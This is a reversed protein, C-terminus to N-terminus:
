WVANSEELYSVSANISSTRLTRTLATSQPKHLQIASPTQLILINVYSLSPLDISNNGQM